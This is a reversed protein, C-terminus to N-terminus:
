VGTSGFGGAGRQTSIFEMGSMQKFSASEVQQFVIQAIREGPEITYASGGTNFLLVKVEGRYGSDITGPSNLVTIGHKNALGSRPHVLGVYGHPIQLYLGTSILKSRGSYIRSHQSSYIDAGADGHNAYTPLRANEGLRVGVEIM